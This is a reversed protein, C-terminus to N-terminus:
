TPTRSGNRPVRLRVETGVGPSSVVVADGGARHIRAEISDVLGHRDSGVADRDFGIGQDRVFASVSGPEVEVFLAVSNSQSHRAANVLAERAAAILADTHEDIPASGVTVTEIAVGHEREVEGVMADVAASLTAKATRPRGYLWGRLEREQTHALAAMQRPDDTRQIMALTQLVSDHLHAAMTAREESRIRERREDSLQRILRFVWPGAVVALGVLVAAAAFTPRALLNRSRGSSFFVALGLAILVAGVLWRAREASVRRALGAFRSRGPDVRSWLVASGGAALAVPVIIGDGVWIGADRLVILVGALMCLFALTRRFSAVHSNGPGTADLESSSAMGVLYLVFGAGGGLALLVFALRVVIPDVGLREGLGGAVGLVVRDTASRTFLEDPGARREV